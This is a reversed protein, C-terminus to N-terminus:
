RNEAAGVIGAAISRALALTKERGTSSGGQQSGDDEERELTGAAVLEERLKQSDLAASSLAVEPTGHSSVFARLVFAGEADAGALLVARSLSSEVPEVKALAAWVQNSGTGMLWHDRGSLQSAEVLASVLVPGFDEM